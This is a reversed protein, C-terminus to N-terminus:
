GRDARPRSRASGKGRDGARCPIAAGIRRDPRVGAADVTKRDASAARGLKEEGVSADLAALMREAALPKVLFDTAGARMAGVASAVSGNATLMLIPLQPRNVRLEAILDIADSDSGWHDLIVADLTMGDATGLTALATEADGAFITRWGRRAAIAAILRRQAPEEDILMLSRMGNRTM